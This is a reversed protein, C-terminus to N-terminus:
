LSARFRSCHNFMGEDHKAMNLMQLLSGRDDAAAFEPDRGITSNVRLRAGICKRKWAYRDLRDIIEVRHCEISVVLVGLPRPHGCIDQGALADETRDVRFSGDTTWHARCETELARLAATDSGHRAPM